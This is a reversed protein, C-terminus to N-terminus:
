LASFDTCRAFGGESGYFQWNLCQVQSFCNLASKFANNMNCLERWVLSSFTICSITFELDFQAESKNTQKNRM